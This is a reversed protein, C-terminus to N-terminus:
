QLSELSKLIKAQKPSTGRPRSVSPKRVAADVVQSSSGGQQSQNSNSTGGNGVDYGGQIIWRTGSTQLSIRTAHKIMPIRKMGELLTLIPYTRDVGITSNFSEVFNNTNEDSKLTPDFKLRTWTDLPGVEQFWKVAGLGVHKQVQNLAMVILNGDDAGEPEYEGDSDFDSGSLGGSGVDGMKSIETEVRTRTRKRTSRVPVDVETASSTGTKGVRVKEALTWILHPKELCGIWVYVRAGYVVEFMKMLTKDDTLAHSKGATCYSLVPYRPLEFGSSSFKNVTENIVDIRLCRDVDDFEDVCQGM